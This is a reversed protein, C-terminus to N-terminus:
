TRVVATGFAFIEVSVAPNNRQSSSINSTALRVNWVEQAGLARAQELMRLIAERRARQLLTDFAKVEGGVINRLNAAFAKFYDTAMVAEGMVLAAHRVQEPHTIRKVNNYAIGALDQERQTLSALHRRERWSGVGYGLALLAVVPLVALWFEM